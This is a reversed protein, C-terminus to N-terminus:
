MERGASPMVEARYTYDGCFAVRVNLTHEGAKAEIWASEDWGWRYNVIAAAAADQDAMIGSNALEVAGDRASLLFCVRHDGFRALLAKRADDHHEAGCGLVAIHDNKGLRVRAFQAAKELGNVLVVRGGDADSCNQESTIFGDGTWKAEFTAMTLELERWRRSM